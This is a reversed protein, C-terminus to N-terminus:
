SRKPFPLCIKVYFLWRFVIDLLTLFINLVIFACLTIIPISFSCIWGLSPSASLSGGGKMLDEPKTSNLLNALKAPLAFAINPKLNKVTEPDIDPLSITQVPGGNEWWPAITFPETRASWHLEAPCDDRCRARVFARAIYLAREDSFRKTPPLDRELRAQLRQRVAERLREAKAADPRPWDDPIRMSSKSSDTRAIAFACLEHLYDGLRQSQDPHDFRVEIENLRNLIAAGDPEFAGWGFQILRLEQVFQGLAGSPDSTLATKVRDLTIDGSLSPRGSGALSRLFSPMLQQIDDDTLTPVEPSSSEESSTVPLVGYLLTRGAAECIDPPAVFLPSVREAPPELRSVIEALRQNIRPNATLLRMRQAPDPDLDLETLAHWGIPNDNEHTWAEERQPFFISTAITVPPAVDFAGMNRVALEIASDRSGGRTAAEPIRAIRRVVLGASDIHRPNLRPFGPQQCAAELVVLNFTRHVPQYLHLRSYGDHRYDAPGPQGLAAATQRRRLGDLLGPIFDRDVRKVILPPRNTEGPAAGYGRVLIPHRTVM